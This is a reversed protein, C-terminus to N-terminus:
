KKKAKSIKQLLYNISKRIGATFIGKTTQILSNKKVIDRINAKMKIQPLAKILKTHIFVISPIYDFLESIDKNKRYHRITGNLNLQDPHDDNNKKIEEIFSKDIFYDITSSYYHQFHKINPLVINKVKNPNESYNSITRIDGQYSIGAITLFLDENTFIDPLQFLSYAVASKLNMNQTEIFTKLVTNDMKEDELISNLQNENFISTDLRPVYLFVPKQLRGAIYLSSWQSLDKNIDNDTIIGYKLNQNQINIHTNYYIHAPIDTQISSILKHSKPFNSLFSYHDKNLLINQKHWNQLNSEKVCFVLDLLVKSSDINEYSNQKLVSSGYGIIYEINKPFEKLINKIKSEVIINKIFM